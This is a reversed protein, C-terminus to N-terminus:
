PKGVFEASVIDGGGTYYFRCNEGQDIIDMLEEKVNFSTGGVRMQLSRVTKYDPGANSHNRVREEVWVFNVTGEAQHLSFDNKKRSRNVMYVAMVVITIAPGLMASSFPFKGTGSIAGRAFMAAGASIVLIFILVILINNNFRQSRDKVILRQDESVRGQRNEQLDSQTFNFYEQLKLDKAM